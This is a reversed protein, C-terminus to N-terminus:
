RADRSLSRVWGYGAHHCGSDGPRAAPQARMKLGEIGSAAATVKFEQNRLSREITRAVIEDDEIVLIDYTSM